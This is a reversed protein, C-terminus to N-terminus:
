SIFKLYGSYRVRTSSGSGHVYASYEDSERMAHVHRNVTSQTVHRQEAIWKQTVWDSEKPADDFLRSKLEGAMQSVRAAAPADQGFTVVYVMGDIFGKGYERAASKLARASLENSTGMASALCETIGELFENGDIEITTKVTKTAM